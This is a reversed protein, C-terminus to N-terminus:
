AGGVRKRARQKEPDRWYRERQAERNCLRCRRIRYDHRGDSERGTTEDTWPHGRECTATLARGKEQKDKHNDLHTGLFLHSARVCPPNDCHHCVQM